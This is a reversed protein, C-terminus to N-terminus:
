HCYVIKSQDLNPLSTTGPEIANIQDISIFVVDKLHGADFEEQSRVDLMIAKGEAINQRILEPSDTTHQPSSGFMKEFLSM